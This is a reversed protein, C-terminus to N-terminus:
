NNEPFVITETTGYTFVCVWPDGDIAFEIRVVKGNEFAVKFNSVEGLDIDDKLEYMKSDPNYTFLDFAEVSMSIPPYETYIEDYFEKTIEEVTGDSYSLYTDGKKTLLVSSDMATESGLYFKNQYNYTTGDFSLIYEGRDAFGMDSPAVFSCIATYNTANQLTLAEYWEDATVEYSILPINNGNDPDTPTDNNNGGNNNGNDPNVPPEPTEPNCAVMAVLAVALLLVVLLISITKKMTIEKKIPIEEKSTTHVNYGV